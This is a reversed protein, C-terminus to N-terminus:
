KKAPGLLPRIHAYIVADMEKEELTADIVIFRDKEKVSLRLYGERVSEHFQKREQEFRDQGEMDQEKNRHIARRLGIDVPCDLLFTIDPLLGGTATENLLRILRM